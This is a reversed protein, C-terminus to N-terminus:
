EQGGNQDVNEIESSNMAEENILKVDEPFKKQLLAGQNNIVTILGSIDM